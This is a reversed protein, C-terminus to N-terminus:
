ASAIQGLQPDLAQPNVGEYEKIVCFSNPRSFMRAKPLFDAGVITIEVQSSVPVFECIIQDPVQM